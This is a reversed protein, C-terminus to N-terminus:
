GKRTTSPRDLLATLQALLIQAAYPMAREGSEWYRVARASVGLYEALAAQTMGLRQRADKIVAPDLRENKM